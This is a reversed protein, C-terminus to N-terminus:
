DFVEAMRDEPAALLYYAAAAMVPGVTGVVTDIGIAVYMAPKIGDMTKVSGQIIEGMIFGIVGLIIASVILAGIISIRRGRTLDSSVGLATFPDARELVAVPLAVFFQAALILMVVLAAIAFVIAGAVGLLSGFLILAAAPIGIALALLITVGIISPLRKLATAFAFGMGTGSDKLAGAVLVSVAGALMFSMLLNVATGLFPSSFYGIIDEPTALVFFMLLPVHILASALVRGADPDIVELRVNLPPPDDESQPSFIHSTEERLGWDPVVAAVWLLGEQDIKVLPYQPYNEM